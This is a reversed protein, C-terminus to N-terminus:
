AQYPHLPMAGQEPHIYRYGQKVVNKIVLGELILASVVGVAILIASLPIVSSGILLPIAAFGLGCVAAGSTGVLGSLILFGWKAAKCASTQWSDQPYEREKKAFFRSITNFGSSGGIALTSGAIAGAIPTGLAIGVALFLLGCPNAIAAM